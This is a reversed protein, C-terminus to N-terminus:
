GRVFSRDRWQNIWKGRPIAMEMLVCRTAANISPVNPSLNAKTPPSVTTNCVLAMMKAGYAMAAEVAKSPSKALPAQHDPTKLPEKPTEKSPHAPSPSQVTPTPPPPLQEDPSKKKGRRGM